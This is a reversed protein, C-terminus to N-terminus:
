TAGYETGENGSRCYCEKLIPEVVVDAVSQFDKVVFAAPDMAVECSNAIGPSEIM